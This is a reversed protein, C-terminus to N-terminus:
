AQAEVLKWVPAAEAPDVFRAHYVFGDGKPLIALIEATAKSTADAKGVLVDVVRSTVREGLIFKAGGLSVDGSTAVPAEDGVQVKFTCAVRRSRRMSATGEDPFVPPPWNPDKIFGKRVGYSPSFKRSEKTHLTRSKGASAAKNIADYM